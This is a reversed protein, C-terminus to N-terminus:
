CLFFLGIQFAAKDSQNSAMRAALGLNLSCYWGVLPYHFSAEHQSSFNQHNIDVCVTTNYMRTHISAVLEQQVIPVYALRVATQIHEEVCWSKSHTKIM